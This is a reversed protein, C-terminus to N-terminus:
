FLGLQALAPEPEREPPADPPEQEPEPEPVAAVEPDPVVPEEVAVAAEAPEAGAPPAPQPPAGAALLEPIRAFDERLVEVNSPTYLAAAPHFLPMLRVARSGIVRVEDRGHLRTIGTPDARLLKTAFNGLTCIVVPQILAVQRM